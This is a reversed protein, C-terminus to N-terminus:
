EASKLFILNDLLDPYEEAYKQAIEASGDPSRDDVLTVHYNGYDQALLSDLCQALYKEANYVPVIVEAKKEAM